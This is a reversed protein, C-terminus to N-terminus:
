EADPRKKGISAGAQGPPQPGAGPGKRPEGGSPPTPRIEDETLQGDGNKDLKKLTAPSAAIEEASIIGDGNADLAAILPPVPRRGGGAGGEPRPPPNDAGQPPAPPGDKNGGPPPGDPRRRENSGGGSPGGKGAGAPPGDGRRPPEKDGGAQPGGEPRPPRLDELRLHDAGNKALKKLAAPANAIEAASIVGDGDADLAAIIPPKPRQGAPGGGPPPNQPNNDRPAQAFITGASFALALTLLHHAPKM